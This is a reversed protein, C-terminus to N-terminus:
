DSSMVSESSTSIVVRLAQAQAGENFRRRGLYSFGVRWPFHPVCLYM